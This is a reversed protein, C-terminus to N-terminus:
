QINYLNRKFDVVGFSDGIQGRHRDLGRKGDCFPLITALVGTRTVDAAWIM